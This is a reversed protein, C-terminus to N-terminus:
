PALHVALDARTRRLRCHCSWVHLDVMFLVVPRGNLRIKITLDSNEVGIRQSVPSPRCTRQGARAM